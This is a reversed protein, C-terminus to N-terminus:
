RKMHEFKTGLTLTRWLELSFNHFWDLELKEAKM